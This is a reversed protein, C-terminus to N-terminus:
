KAKGQKFKRYFNIIAGRFKKRILFKINDPMKDRPPRYRFFDLDTKDDNEIEITLQRFIDNM